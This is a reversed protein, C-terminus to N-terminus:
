PRETEEMVLTTFRERHIQNHLVQLNITPDTPGRALPQRKKLVSVYVFQIQFMKLYLHTGWRIEEGAVCGPVQLVCSEVSEGSGHSVEDVIDQNKNEAFTYNKFASSCDPLCWYCFM